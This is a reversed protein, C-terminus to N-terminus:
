GRDVLLDVTFVREAAEGGGELTGAGWALEAATTTTAITNGEDVPENATVTFAHSAVAGAAVDPHAVTGTHYKVGAEGGGNERNIADALNALTADGSWAGATTGGLTGTGDVAIHTASETLVISNGGTGAVDATITFAHATVTSATVPTTPQATGAFYEVGETGSGNIAAILNALTTDADIGIQIDNAQAPTGKFRYIQDDVTITGGDDPNTNDSTVTGVAAVDPEILVDYAQALADKLRYVIDGVTVTEGDVIAGTNSFTIEGTADPTGTSKIRVPAVGQLALPIELPRNNSDKDFYNTDAEVLSAKSFLTEGRQGLIYLTFATGTLAPAVVTIGKLIGNLQNNNGNSGVIPSDETDQDAPITVQTTYRQVRFKQM